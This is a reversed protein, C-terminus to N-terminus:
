CRPRHAKPTSRRGLQFSAPDFIFRSFFAEVAIFGRIAERRENTSFLSSTWVSDPRQLDDAFRSRSTPGHSGPDRSIDLSSISRRNQRLQFSSRESSDM